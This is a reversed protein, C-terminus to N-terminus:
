QIAEYLYPLSVDLRHDIGSHTGDFEEYHHRIGHRKLERSLVRMGYHISYQDRNGCDMYIAPVSKLADAHAQVRQIPDHELWRAWREAVLELTDVDFPLRIGSECPDYSAAMCLVMLTHFEDGGPATASWFHQLFRIPDGDHRALVRAARPFDNRMVVEFHCDGSQNGIAGWQGPFDMALRMAGFGGSSKGVAARHAAGPKIRFRQEVLPILEQHILSAYAGVAPSDVYQNGGLSTFCDPAIAVVPGMRGSAILRDLREGLNEVFGRWNGIARGSNTYAALYWIVPYRQDSEDYGPPLYVAHRRRAPDGWPNGALLTSDHDLDTIRGAPWDPFSRVPKM